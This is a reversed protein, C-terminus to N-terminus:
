DGDEDEDSRKGACESCRGSSNVDKAYVARGCLSCEVVGQNPPDTPPNPQM